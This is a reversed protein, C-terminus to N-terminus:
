SLSPDYPSALFRETRLPHGLHYQIQEAFARRIERAQAPMIRLTPGADPGTELRRMVALAGPSIRFAAPDAAHCDGCLAGGASASFRTVGHFAGGCQACRDAIPLNGLARLAAALFRCLPLEPDGKKELALFLEQLSGHLPGDDANEDTARLVLEAAYFATWLAQLNSRLGPRHDKLSWDALLHLHGASRLSLVLDYSCLLDLPMRGDKRPRRSGKALAHVQGLDPTCIAVVQSTESFDTRRLIIGVTRHYAV